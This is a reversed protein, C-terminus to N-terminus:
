HYCQIIKDNNSLIYDIQSTVTGNFHYFTPELSKFNDIALAHDKVFDKLMINHKNNRTPMLTGNLDGCFVIKHTSEFRYIIDHLVDLCECYNYESDTKNTPMYANIFCFKQGFDSELAIIRENGVKLKTVINSLKNSCLILVGSHSRPINFHSITADSSCM